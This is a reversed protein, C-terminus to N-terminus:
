KQVGLYQEREEGTLEALFRLHNEAESAKLPALFITLQEKLQEGWKQLEDLKVHWEGIDKVNAPKRGKMQLILLRFKFQARSPLIEQEPLLGLEVAKQTMKAPESVALKKLSELLKGEELGLANHYLQRRELEGLGRLWQQIKEDPQEHEAGLEFPLKAIMKGVKSKDQPNVLAPVPFVDASLQPQGQKKGKGKQGGKGSYQGKGRQHM